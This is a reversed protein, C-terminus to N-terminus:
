RRDGSLLCPIPLTLQGFLARLVVVQLQPDNAKGNGPLTAVRSTTEGESVSRPEMVQPHTPAVLSPPDDDKHAVEIDPDETFIAFQEAV